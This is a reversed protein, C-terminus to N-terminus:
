VVSRISFIFASALALVLNVGSRLGKSHPERKFFVATAPPVNCERGCMIYQPHKTRKITRSRGANSQTAVWLTVLRKNQAETWNKTGGVRGRICSGTTEETDESISEVRSNTSLRHVINAGHSHTYSCLKSKDGSTKGVVSDVLNTSGTLDIFTVGSGSLDEGVVVISLCVELTGVFVILISKSKWLESAGRATM